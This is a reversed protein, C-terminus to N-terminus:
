HRFFLYVGLALVVVGIGFVIIPWWNERKGAHQQHKPKTDWAMLERGCHPCQKKKRSFPSSPLVVTKSCKPCKYESTM